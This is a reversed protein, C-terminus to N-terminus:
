LTKKEAWRFKLAGAAKPIAELMRSFEEKLPPVRPSVRYPAHPLTSLFGIYLVGLRWYLPANRLEGWAKLGFLRGKIVRGRLNAAGVVPFDLIPNFLDHNEKYLGSALPSSNQPWAFALSSARGWIRRINAATKKLPNLPGKTLAWYLVLASPRFFLRVQTYVGLKFLQSRLFLDRFLAKAVERFSLLFLPEPQPGKDSLPTYRLSRTELENQKKAILNLMAPTPICLLVGKPPNFFVKLKCIFLNPGRLRSLLLPGVLDKLYALNPRAAKVLAKM